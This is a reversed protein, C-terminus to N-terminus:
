NKKIFSSEGHPVAYRYQIKLYPDLLGTSQIASRLLEMLSFSKSKGYVTGIEGEIGASRGAWEVADELNGLRDVLGLDKAEEGTFIRGNALQKVADLEMERGQAVDQVFQQHIKDVFVQFLKKEKATMDRVPSGMDKFEGSKFVIPVLGIKKFIDQFNTYGIIVGISGTITGPNAMIGDTGAAIYYGGSAAISGMSTFVNKKKITKRIERYIEQSPGVGGGPSNIRMLIAKVAEEERFKKLQALVEKSETIPGTVEIIGVKEGFELDSTKSGILFILSLLIVGTFFITTFLLIFFLYPHRRSFM